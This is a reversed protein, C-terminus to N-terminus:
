LNGKVMERFSYYGCLAFLGIIVIDFANMIM